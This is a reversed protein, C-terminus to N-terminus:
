TVKANKVVESEAAHLDRSLELFCERVRDLVEIKRAYKRNFAASFLSRHDLTSRLQEIQASLAEAIWIAEQSRECMQNLDSSSSGNLMAVTM